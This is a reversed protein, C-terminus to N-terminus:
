TPPRWHEGPAKLMWLLNANELLDYETLDHDLYCALVENYMEQENHCAILILEASGKGVGTRGNYTQGEKAGSKYQKREIVGCGVVNDVSDGTLLLTYFWRLGELESVHFKRDRGWDYKWGPVM